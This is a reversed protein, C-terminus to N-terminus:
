LMWEKDNSPNKSMALGTAWDEGVGKIFYNDVPEPDPTPDVPMAEGCKDCLNDEDEDVHETCEPDPDPTPDVPTVEAGCNDCLNDSDEDVHETCEPIEPTVSQIWLGVYDGNIELYFDYTGAYTFVINGDDAATYVVTVEPKVASAGIWQDLAPNHIKIDEGATIDVGTLMWEKDNSPNKSMALGTAWDEGVGKIFYNDVPEPDPTPDVPMAEGCKDCLGDEDEDVHETCEPDPDPTPDVPMAEGCKDCLNDSDEDVHETCEPDPTEVSEEIWLAHNGDIVELYFNYTGANTFIVNGDQAATLEVTIGDKLIDYGYWGNTATNNIKVDEGAAIAVGKLMWENENDPNKEFALGTAWDEGIGKLVYNDIVEPVEGDFGTIWANGKYYPNEYNIVLDATQTGAGNNFIINVYGTLEISFWGDHDDVATMLAGPWSNNGSDSWVYAYVNSWGNANHYYVTVTENSPMAKGCLDCIDDLDEDVHECAKGAIWLQPNAADTVDLYFDYAGAQNFVINGDSDTGISVSVGSKVISYGYWGEDGMSTNHIKVSVGAGIEVGQIMYEVAGNSASTNLYLGLGESWDGDVGKLVYTAVPQPNGVTEGCLDCLGDMDLDEHECPVYAEEVVVTFTASKGQYTVEVTKTGVTATDIAGLTFDTVTKQSNDSYIAKVVVDSANLSGGVQLNAGIYVVSISELVPAPPAVTEGCKDCKGDADADVHETCDPEDIGVAAGCNDCKGDVNADAHETCVPPVEEEWKAYLTIDASLELGELVFPTTLAEDTFWGEFTFGVRTPDAPLVIEAASKVELPAIETAGDYNLDFSVSWVPDETEVCAALAVSLVIVLVLAISILWQKNKM